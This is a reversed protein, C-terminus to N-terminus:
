AKGVLGHKREPLYGLVMDADDSRSVFLSVIDAPFQGDAPFFTLWDGRAERFGTRYGGGLGLNTGHHIVRMHPEAAALQDALAGTGDTSGDDVILFEWSRGLGKLEVLMEEVAPGLNSVENYALIVVSVHPRAASQTM